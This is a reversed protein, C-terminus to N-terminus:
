TKWEPGTGSWERFLRSSSTALGDSRRPATSRRPRQTRRWAVHRLVHRVASCRRAPSSSRGGRNRERILPRLHKKGSFHQRRRILALAAAHMDAPFQGRGMAILPREPTSCKEREIGAGWATLASTEAERNVLDLTGQPNYLPETQWDVDAFWEPRGCGGNLVPLVCHRLVALKLSTGAQSTVDEICHVAQSM